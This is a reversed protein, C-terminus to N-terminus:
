PQTTGGAPTGGPPVPVARRQERELLEKVEDPSPTATNFNQLRRDYRYTRAAVLQLQRQGPVYTYAALTQADVDLMYVGWTDRSFQGPMIFVGAGGAIPPTNQGFAAPMLSPWKTEGSGARMVLVLAIVGLVGANAWLAKTLGRNGNSAGDM